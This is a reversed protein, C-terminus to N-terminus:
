RWMALLYDKHSYGEYKVNNLIFSIYLWESSNYVSYYGDCNVQTGKPILVLARKNTGAGDRCYLNSKTKFQGRYNASVKTPKATAIVERSYNPKPNNIIENVRSQVESYNYGSNTLNIKRASGTGWQGAIVEHAIVDISKKAVAPVNEFSNFKPVVYGRIFRGNINITRKRVMDSYNGEIVVIYGSEKSVFSVVGIHESTGVDDGVGNDQWDYLIADGPTPVYADDEVWIGMSKAKKIVENCSCEIPFIDAYGCEIFVASVFTACWSDNPKVAYGRALSKFGNYINLIEGHQPSHEKAGLWAEARKIIRERSYVKCM